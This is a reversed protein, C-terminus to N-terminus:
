SSEASRRNYSFDSEVLNRVDVEATVLQSIFGNDMCFILGDSPITIENANMVITYM